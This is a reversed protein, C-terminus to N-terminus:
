CQEDYEEEIIWEPVDTGTLFLQAECALHWMLAEMPHTAKDFAYGKEVQCNHAMYFFRALENTEAVVETLTRM